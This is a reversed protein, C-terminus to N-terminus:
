WRSAADYIYRNTILHKVKPRLMMASQEEWAALYDQPDLAM